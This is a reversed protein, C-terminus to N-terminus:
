YPYVAWYLIWLALCIGLTFFIGLLVAGVEGAFKEGIYGGISGLIITIPVVYSFWSSGGWTTLVINLFLGLLLGSISGYFWVKPRIKKPPIKNTQEISM